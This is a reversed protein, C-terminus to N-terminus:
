CNIYEIEGGSGVIVYSVIKVKKNLKIKDIQEMSDIIIFANIDDESMEALNNVVYTDIAENGYKFYYVDYVPNLGESAATRNFFTLQHPSKTQIFYDQINNLLDLMLWIARVYGGNLHSSNYAKNVKLYVESQDYYALKRKVIQNLITEIQHENKGRKKLFGKILEVPLIRCDAILKVIENLETQEIRKIVLPEKINSNVM